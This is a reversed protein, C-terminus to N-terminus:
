SELMENLFWAHVRPDAVLEPHFCLAVLRGQRLAVPEGRLSALQEVDPGVRTVRPARIFIAKLTDAGPGGAPDPLPWDIEEHFSHVQRGWGNRIVDIDMLGFTPHPLRDASKALLIMGACTGLVPREAMFEGLPGFLGSSQLLHCMTTSEGGPLILADLGALDAPLRVERPAAGVASLHEAHKDVAGQLALLGVAPVPDLRPLGSQTQGQFRPEGV